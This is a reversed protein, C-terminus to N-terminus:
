SPLLPWCDGLVEFIDKFADFQEFFLNTGNQFVGSPVTFFGILNGAKQMNPITLYHTTTERGVCRLPAGGNTFKTL